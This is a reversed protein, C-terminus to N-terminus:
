NSSIMSIRKRNEKLRVVAELIHLEKNGLNEDGPNVPAATTWYVSYEFGFRLARNQLEGPLVSDHVSIADPAHLIRRPHLTGELNEDM